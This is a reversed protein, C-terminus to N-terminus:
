NKPLEEINDDNQVQSEGFVLSEAICDGPTNRFSDINPNKEALREYSLFYGYKEVYEIYKQFDITENHLDLGDFATAEISQHITEIIAVKEYMDYKDEENQESIYSIMKKSFDNRDLQPIPNKKDEYTLKVIHTLIGFLHYIGFVGVIQQYDNNERLTEFVQSAFFTTKHELPYEKDGSVCSILDKPITQTMNKNCQICGNRKSYISFRTKEILTVYNLLEISSQLEELSLNKILYGM